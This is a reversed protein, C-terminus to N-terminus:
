QRTASFNAEWALNPSCPETFYVTGSISQGNSSVAGNLTVNGPTDDSANETGTSSFNLGNQEISLTGAGVPGCGTISFAINGILPSETANFQFESTGAFSGPVNGLGTINGTWGGIITAGSSPPPNGNYQGGTATFNGTWANENCLNPFTITGTATNGTGAGTVSGTMQFLTDDPNTNTM